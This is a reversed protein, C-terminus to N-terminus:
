FALTLEVFASWLGRGGGSTTNYLQRFGSGPVLTSLGGTFILNNNLVPRYEVGSSLDLGIDRNIGTRGTLVELPNTKDFWLYNANNVLRVKPTIDFDVGLNVLILGPNVFNSQGQSRSSRLDPYLSQDNPLGVGFLPIRQRRWFSFQGAFNTNDIIGDFGTARGDTANGDGSAWFGSTRFRVWDQTYSLELAAMQASVTQPRGALPNMSDRGLVWYFAHSLSVRDIHGDGAFGLYYAEVRHPQRSGVPDPRVLSGNRAFQVSPGDNNYHFSASAIYGPTLFDQRYVNAIVVNQDRDNFTNLGTASDKEQQRMYVLNYQTRNGDANGFLRVGRNTDSYIFGRFDSTFPQAGARVSLFDYQPSLDALKYEGFWEQLTVSALALSTGRAPDPSVVRTQQATLANVGVAPTVRVRWDAPKFGADGQFLDFSFSYLETHAFQGSRAFFDGQVPRATGAPPPVAATPLTRGEFLWTASGSLNLFTHQGFIPYDGKLVHQTYPNFWRGVAFPYDFGPPHGKEYRDWAPLGIRWRDEVTDYEDNSGSRMPVRSRGSFGLAPDPLVGVPIVPAGQPDPEAPPAPTLPRTLPDSLSEPDPPTAPADKERVPFPFVPLPQGWVGAPLLALLLVGSLAHRQLPPM